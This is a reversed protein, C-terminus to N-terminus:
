PVRDATLAAVIANGLRAWRAPESAWGTTLDRNALVACAIGHEADAWLLTGADGPHGCTRPGTMDGSWHGTKGSKIEWGLGWAGAPWSWGPTGGDGTGTEEGALGGPRRGTQNTTMAEVTAASLVRVGDPRLGGALFVSAFRVLDRASAFLGVAPSGLSRGATANLARDRGYRRAIRRQDGPSPVLVTEELGVRDLVEARLVEAFPAGAAAAIAEGLLWYGARSPLVQEGPRAVLTTAAAAAVWEDFGAGRSWLEGAGPVEAPLGSVHCLLDRATIERRVAEGAAPAFGPVLWRIPEDLAAVGQEVLRLYATATLPM